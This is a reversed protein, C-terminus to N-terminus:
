SANSSGFGRQSRETNDEIEYKYRLPENCKKHFVLQAIKFGEPILISKLSYCVVFIEGRYGTDIQGPAVNLGDASNGSRPLVQAWYGEPLELKVGTPIKYPVRRTTISEMVIQTTSYMDWGVDGPYAQTLKGTYFIM